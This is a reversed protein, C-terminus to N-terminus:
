PEFARDALAESRAERYADLVARRSRRHDVVPAPYDSGIGCGVAQQLSSPMRWPEHIHEDPVRHLEPVWRRVYIGQPDFREAQRTPNFIRFYPAADTGVGATWQWGGNNAAPDGDILNQMFWREGWRWDVLLDKTLFSAVVMRARNPIWGTQRLQRMAADVIPFGTRGEIWATYHDERNRWRVARLSPRFARQLVAPDHDLVGIYFERWILEDIWAEIGRRETEGTAEQAARRARVVAARASVMGFRLYPSLGSSAPPELANRGAAYTGISSAMFSELRRVAEAEGPPFDPVPAGDPLLEGPLQPPPTLGAPPPIVSQPRPPPLAQWARRFARYVAFPTGDSRTLSEPPHVTVGFVWRMPLDRSVAADRRRAFPRYDIEAAVEQAGVEAVLRSLEQQPDGRRLILRSGRERLAEDLAALGGFLFANRRPSAAKGHLLRDDLIFVPVVTRGGELAAHLAANDGLRLDRRIWWIAKAATM